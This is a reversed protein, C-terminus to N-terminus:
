FAGAAFGEECGRSVVPTWGLTPTDRQLIIARYAIFSDNELRQNNPSAVNILCISSVAEKTCGSLM